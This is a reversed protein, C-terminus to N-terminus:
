FTFKFGTSLSFDNPKAGEQPRRDYRNVGAMQLALHETLPMTLSVETEVRINAPRFLNSFFTFQQNLQFKEGVKQEATVRVLGIAPHQQVGNSYVERSLGTGMDMGIRSREGKFLHYSLGVSESLRYSLQQLRDFEYTIESFAPYGALPHEFRLAANFLQAEQTGDRIGRRGSLALSMRSPGRKRSVAFALNLDSLNSNGRAFSYAFNFSREWVESTENQETKPLAQNANSEIPSKAKEHIVAAITLRAEENATDWDKIEKAAISISGSYSTEIQVHDGQASIFEGSLRDGNLMNITIQRGEKAHAVDVICIVLALALLCRWTM